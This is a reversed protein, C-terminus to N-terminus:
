SSSYILKSNNDLSWDVLLKTFQFNLKMMYNVDQELTDSCAGIHYIVDPKNDILISILEDDWDENQFIDENIEIIIANDKERLKKILNKGIFGESGTVLITKM